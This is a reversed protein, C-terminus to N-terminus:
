VPGHIKCQAIETVNYEALQNAKYPSIDVLEKDTGGAKMLM